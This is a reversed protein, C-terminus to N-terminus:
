QVVKITEPLVNSFGEDTKHTQFEVKKGIVGKKIVKLTIEDGANLEFGCKMLLKGFGSLKSITAPFGVKIEDLPEDDPLAIIVDAYTYEKRTNIEVDKIKGEHKGDDLSVFEKVEFIEENEEKM